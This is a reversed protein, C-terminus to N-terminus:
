FDYKLWDACCGAEPDPWKMKPKRLRRMEAPTGRWTKFVSNVKRGVVGRAASSKRMKMKVVASSFNSPILPSSM